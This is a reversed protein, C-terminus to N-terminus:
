REKAAAATRIIQAPVCLWKSSSTKLTNLGFPDLTTVSKTVDQPQLEYVVLCNEKSKVTSHQDHHWHEVPVCFYAAKLVKRNRSGLTDTLKVEKGEPSGKVIEYAKFYNLGEPIESPSGTTLRQAPSLLLAPKGITISYTNTGQLTDRVSLVQDSADTPREISYWNLYARPQVPNKEGYGIAQSFLEPGSLFTETIESDFPGKLDVEHDIKRSPTVRLVEFFDGSNADSAPTLVALSCLLLFFDSPIIVM